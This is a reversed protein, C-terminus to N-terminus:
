LVEIEFNYQQVFEDLGYTKRGWKKVHLHVKNNKVAIYREIREISKIKGKLEQWLLEKKLCRQSYIYQKSILCIFNAISCKSEVINNMIINCTETNIRVPGYEEAIFKFVSQWIMHVHPCEVLLHPVTELAEGCFTCLNSEVINWKCLQVNTVLGRQILRYQFSRYKAINTVRYIDKHKEAFEVLSENYESGLEIRWKIYKNHILLLDDQLYRYVTSSLSKSHVAKDYNHPPMPLFAEKSTNCMDQIWQKPIAAKLSNYRMTSLKFEQAVELDTKLRGGVFLQHLFKLGNQYVDKWFIMKYNVKIKSNYWILEKEICRDLYYNYSCWSYLVDRWFPNGIKLSKVDEPEISCRWIEERLDKCRMQQYVISAYEQEQELIAPWTAKLAMDKKKLNVLNLGGQNKPNQLINYAIKSKKSNWLYDRIINDVQKLINNPIIPLVMMKHVFLSAVLTNVVQVKGLLSLDRNQWSSLTQKAKQVVMSYNKEIIDEHAVIIGLVTIDEVM